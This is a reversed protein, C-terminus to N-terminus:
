NVRNIFWSDNIKNIRGLFNNIQAHLTNFHPFEMLISKHVIFLICNITMEVGFGTIAKCHVLSRTFKFCICVNPIVYNPFNSM